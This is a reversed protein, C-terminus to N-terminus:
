LPEDLCFSFKGKEEYHKIIGAASPMSSEIVWFSGAVKGQILAYARPDKEKLRNLAGKLLEPEVEEFIQPTLSLNLALYEPELKLGFRASILGRQKAQTEGIFEYSHGDPFTQSTPLWGIKKFLYFFNDTVIIRLSQSQPDHLIHIINLGSFNQISIQRDDIYFCFETQDLAPTEKVVYYRKDGSSSDIDIRLSLADADDPWNKDSPYYRVEFGAYAPKYRMFSGSPDTSKKIEFGSKALGALIRLHKEQQEELKDLESFPIYNYAPRNNALLSLSISSTPSLVERLMRYEDSTGPFAVYIEGGQKTECIVDYDNVKPYIVTLLKAKGKLSTLRYYLEDIELKPMDNLTMFDEVLRSLPKVPPAQLQSRIVDNIKEVYSSVDPFLNKLYDLLELSGNVKWSVYTTRKDLRTDFKLSEADKRLTISESESVIRGGKLAGSVPNLGILCRMELGVNGPAAPEDLWGSNIKEAIAELSIKSPKVSSEQPAQPQLLANSIIELLSIVGLTATAREGKKRLEEIHGRLILLINADIEGLRALEEAISAAHYLEGKKRLEEMVVRATSIEGLKALKIAINVASSLIGKKNLCEEMIEKATSIEGLEIAIIAAGQLEGKDLCEQMVERAVTKEIKSLRLLEIVSEAFPWLKNKDHYEQMIDKVTNIFGLGLAIRSAWYEEGKNRCELMIEAATTVEIENLRILEIAIKAASVWESEKYFEQMIKKAIDPADKALAIANQTDLLDIKNKKREFWKQMLEKATNIQGSERAIRVPWYSSGGQKIYKQIIENVTNIEGLEIAIMAAGYLEGKDRCEQM